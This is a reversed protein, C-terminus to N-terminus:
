RCRALQCAVASTFSVTRVSREIYSVCDSSACPPEPPLSPLSATQTSGEATSPVSPCGGSAGSPGSVLPASALVSGSSHAGSGQVAQGEVACSAPPQFSPLCVGASRGLVADHCGHRSLSSGCDSHLVGPCSFERLDRVPRHYGSVSSPAGSISSSLPDVGLRPGPLPSQPLRCPREPSRSHISSGPSGSQRRLSSSDVPGHLEPNLLADGRAEAFLVSSNHQRCLPLGFSGLPGSSFGSSRLASCPTGPSQSFLELVDSAVLRVSPRGRYLCGLRFGLRRHVPRSRAASPRAASWCASPVRCVVVSSGRPLFRGLVGLRFRSTPLRLRQPAAPSVEDSASVGSRHGFSLVNGRPASAM